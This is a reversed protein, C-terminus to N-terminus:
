IRGKTSPVGKVRKDLRAAEEIARGFGKFISELIHHPDKGKLVDVHMNIGSSQVFAKLFEETDNISYKQHVFYKNISKPASFYLSPRGSIDLSVRVGSLSEDMPVVCSGFRRIGKKDGLAQKLAQGLVIGVDENTHHIDVDLDGRARIKLTFLGHKAFLDLMHDLFAIGTDIKSNGGADLDISASINTERTVRKVASVRKKKKSQKKTM